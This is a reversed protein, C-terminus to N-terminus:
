KFIFVYLNFYAFFNCYINWISKCTIINFFPIRPNYTGLIYKLPTFNYCELLLVASLIAVMIFIAYFFGKHYEYFNKACYYVMLYIGISIIGDYRYDDGFISVIINVSFITSICALLYFVLLLKDIFDFKLDKKRIALMLFLVIGALLLVIARVKVNMSFDGLYPILYTPLIFMLFMLVISINKNSAFKLLKEEM